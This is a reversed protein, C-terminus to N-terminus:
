PRTNDELRELFNSVWNKGGGEPIYIDRRRAVKALADKATLGGYAVFYGAVAAASRGRGARCHVLVPPAERVLEDIADVALRLQQFENGHDDVLRVTEIKLERRREEIARLQEGHIKDLWPKIGREDDLSM